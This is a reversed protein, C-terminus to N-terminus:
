IYFSVKTVDANIKKYNVHIYGMHQLIQLLMFVAGIGVAVEQSVRKLCYGSCIGVLGSVGMENVQCQYQELVKALLDSPSPLDNPSDNDGGGAACQAATRELQFYALGMSSLILLTGVRRGGRRPVVALAEAVPQRIVPLPVRSKTTYRLFSATPRFVSGISRPHIGFLLTAM